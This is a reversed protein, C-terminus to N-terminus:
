AQTVGGFYSAPQNRQLLVAGARDPQITVTIGEELVVDESSSSESVLLILIGEQLVLRAVLLASDAHLNKATQQLAVQYVHRLAPMNNGLELPLGSWIITGSGKKFVQLRNHAKQVYGTKDQDFLVQYADVMGTQDVLREYRSVPVGKEDQETIGPLQVPFFLNHQDRSIVGNVLLTTGQEVFALLAQWAARTLTQVGPLIITRPDYGGRVLESLRYKNIVQPIIGFDYGLVRIAKRTSEVALAPRVSWQSYPAIVWTDPLASKKLQGQLSSMLRAFELMTVLEPKASGDVRVLGISNENENRMYPNIHWLWQILGAGRAALGTILKRELLHAAAQETRWPQMDISQVFMVGAEQILNPKHLTKDILMDWLIDDTNWWPHTTTYDVAAAYFQPAIRAGAEDQGVGVLSSSGASRITTYLTTAWQNFMEQSFLTYDMVKLMHHTSPVRPTTAYDSEDPLTVQDWTAFDGPTQRWRQQLEALSYREALWRQFAALEFRDYHPIPRERFVKQPDGFSPENILDWSVLTVDAYRRAFASVFDQQGQITRPDLWPNQGEFLPPSFSFFTFIVQMNYKCATMVFADMARLANENIYGALPMFERWATWIGTRIINIGSARMEAFDRDWRAPNPLYLFKRQVTSDMYTTGCLAFAVDDQYFYDRGASLRKQAVSQVLAEDWIWFGTEQQLTMGHPGSVSTYVHYLGPIAQAPLPLQQEQLIPSGAIALDVHAIIANYPNEIRIQLTIDQNARTTVLCTPTAGSSYSAFQPHLDVNTCGDATLLLLHRITGQIALWDEPKAPQWPSLLWRGGQFRGQVHDLLVAPTALHLADTALTECVFILPTLYTDLPGASGLDSPHDSAQTLMPYFSWFSGAQDSPIELIPSPLLTAAPAVKLYLTSSPPLALPFFPGLFLEKTYAFQEEEVTGDARVPRVFPAGGFVALNGM